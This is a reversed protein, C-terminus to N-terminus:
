KIGIAMPVLFDIVIRATWNEGNTNVSRQQDDTLWFRLNTRVTGALTQGNSKAPHFPTSVIQSGPSM